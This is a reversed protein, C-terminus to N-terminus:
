IKFCMTQAGGITQKAAPDGAKCCSVTRMRKTGWAGTPAVLGDAGAGFTATPHSIAVPTRTLSRLRAIGNKCPDTCRGFGQHGLRASAFKSVRKNQRADTKVIVPSTDVNSVDKCLITHSVPSNLRSLVIGLKSKASPRASMPLITTM